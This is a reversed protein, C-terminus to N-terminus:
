VKEVLSSDENASPVIVLCRDVVMAAGGVGNSRRWRQAAVVVAVEMATGGNGNGNRRRRLRQQAAMVTAAGGLGNSCRWRQREAAM